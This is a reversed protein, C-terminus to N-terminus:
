IPTASGAAGWQRGSGSHAAPPAALHLTHPSLRGGAAGGPGGHHGAALCPRHPRPSTYGAACPTRLPLAPDTLLRGSLVTSPHSRSGDSHMCVRQGGLGLTCAFGDVFGFGFKNKPSLFVVGRGMLRVNWAHLLRHIPCTFSVVSAAKLTAEDATVAPREHALLSALVEGCPRKEIVYLLRKLTLRAGAGYLLGLSEICADQAAHAACHALLGNGSADTARVNFPLASALICRLIPPSGGLAASRLVEFLQLQSPQWTANPASAGGHLLRHWWVMVGSPEAEAEVDSTVSSDASVGGGSGGEGGEEEDSDTDIARRRAARQVRSSTGVVAARRRGSAALAFEHAQQQLPSCTTTSFLCFLRPYSLSLAYSGQGGVAAGCDRGGGMWGVDVLWSVLRFLQVRGCRAAAIMVDAAADGSGFALRGAAAQQVLHDLLLALSGNSLFESGCACRLVSCRRRVSPALPDAGAALLAACMPQVSPQDGATLVTASLPTYPKPLGDMPTGVGSADAGLELLRRVSALHGLRYPPPLNPHNPHLHPHRTTFWM